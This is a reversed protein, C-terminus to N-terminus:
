LTAYPKSAILRYNDGHTYFQEMLWYVGTARKRLKKTLLERTIPMVQFISIYKNESVYCKVTSPSKLIEPLLLVTGCYKGNIGMDLTDSVTINDKENFAYEATAWLLSNLSLWDTPADEDESTDRIDVDPDIFMMYENRRNAKRGFGIDREPM